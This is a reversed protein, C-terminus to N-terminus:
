STYLVDTFEPKRKFLAIAFPCVPIIKMQHKRAYDVTAAVLQFGTNQGRLGESVGTHEMFMKDYSPMSYFLKALFAAEDGIYFLGRTNSLKHFIIM